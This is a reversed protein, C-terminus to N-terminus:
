RTSPPPRPTKCWTSTPSAARFSNAHTLTPLTAQALSPSPARLSRSISVEGLLRLLKYTKNNIRLNPSSPFCSMCNTLSYVLDMVYSAMSAMTAALCRLAHYLACRLRPLKFHPACASAQSLRKAADGPIAFGLMCRREGWLSMVHCESYSIALNIAVHSSQLLRERGSLRVASVITGM